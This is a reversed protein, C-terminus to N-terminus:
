FPAAGPAVVENDYFVPYIPEPLPVGDLNPGYLPPDALRQNSEEVFPWVEVPQNNQPHSTSIMEDHLSDYSRAFLLGDMAVALLLLLLMAGIAAHQFMLILGVTFVLVFIWPQGYAHLMWSPYPVRTQFTYIISIAALAGMVLGQGIQLLLDM